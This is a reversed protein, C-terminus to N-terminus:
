KLEVIMGTEAPAAFAPLGNDRAIDVGHSMHTFLAQEPKVEAFLELAEVMDYVSRSKKEAAEQYYSTGLVLLKLGFLPAIEEGQLDIADSCYVWSYPAGATRVFKYAYSYGNKGHCVKWPTISWGNWQMGKANDHFALHQELWPFQRRITQLVDSPAYLQGKRKLWRCADAWEPLGGIHDFHAHTVLVHEMFHQGNQEMQTRWDPGCDILLQRDETQLLASSRYRRNIGTTRAESCIDCSCYVRPVGLSDGTGWFTLTSKM